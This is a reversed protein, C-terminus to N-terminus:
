EVGLVRRGAPTDIEARLAPAGAVVAAVGALGLSALLAHVRAPEPHRIEFRALALGAGPLDAAVGRAPRRWEIVAPGVGDLPARGTPPLTFLWEREGRTMAEVAGLSAVVEAPLAALDDTCAVWAALRPARGAIDEDLGFWRPRGPAEGEPDIAIVELYASEGLRLVRNHTGMRPHRGGPGPAVGLRQAIWAAGADLTPATVVLHDLRCRM